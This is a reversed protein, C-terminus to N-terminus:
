AAAVTYEGTESVAGRRLPICLICHSTGFCGRNIRLLQNNETLIKQWFFVAVALVIATKFVDRRAQRTGEAFVQQITTDARSCSVLDM